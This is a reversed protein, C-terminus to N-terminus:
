IQARLLRVYILGIALVVGLMIVSAASGLGIEFFRFATQYIFVSMLTTEGGPGGRTLFYILGFVSFTTITTLLMYLVIAHKMLPLTIRTLLQRSNAGDVRAAEVVERPIGELAATFLIMAFAIGRWTNVVIISLMPNTQLWGIPELGGLQLLRNLTGFEGPALMSAWALAAVSEPVVLPLLILASLFGKGRVDSRAFGLAAALGLVFQGIIGSALVFVASRRLADWFEDNGLLRTYNSPGVFKPQLAEIGTLRQNTLSIVFAWIVPGVVFLVLLVLVPALFGVVVVRDGRRRAPRAIV